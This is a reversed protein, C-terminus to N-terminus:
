RNRTMVNTMHSACCKVQLFRPLAVHSSIIILACGLFIQGAHYATDRELSLDPKRQFANSDIVSFFFLVLTVLFSLVAVILISHFICKDRSCAQRKASRLTQV